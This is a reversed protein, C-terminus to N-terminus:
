KATSCNDTMQIITSIGQIGLGVALLSKSRGITKVLSEIHKEARGASSQLKALDRDAKDIGSSTVNLHLKAFDTM